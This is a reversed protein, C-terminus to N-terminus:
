KFLIDDCHISAIMGNYTSNVKVGKIVFNELAIGKIRNTEDFGLIQSAPFHDGLVTINKFRINEIFGRLKDKTYNSKLIKFDILWGSADEVRIDRYLVNKIVARDGNHITFTGEPGEAHLIDINEFLIDKISDARTEFGIELANGWQANWIVSNVVKIYESLQQNLFKTYYTVGAKIAVCDDKTRIFCDDVLVHRSSVIDIGDDWDNNSIIKINKYTINTSLNCPVTWHKSDTVTIGEVLINDCRNIEIMRQQGKKFISGDLVGHGYIHVNKISDLFLSGKVYAGGEIYVVDNTKLVIRNTEYVKGAEFYHVNSARKDPKDKIYENGFLFLPKVISSNLEISLKCPKAISFVITSDTVVPVIGLVLPRIVVSQITQTTQITIQTNGNMDFSCFAAPVASAYVFAPRGNVKVKFEKSPALGEPSPYIFEQAFLTNFFLLLCLVVFSQKKFFPSQIFCYFIVM